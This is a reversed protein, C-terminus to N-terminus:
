RGRLGEQLDLCSLLFYSGGEDTSEDSLKNGAHEPRQGGTQGRPMGATCPDEGQNEAPEENKRGNLQGQAQHSPGM